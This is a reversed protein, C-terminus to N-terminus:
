YERSGWERPASIVYDEGTDPIVNFFIKSAGKTHSLISSMTSKRTTDFDFRVPCIFSVTQIPCTLDDLPLWGCNPLFVNRLFTRVDDAVSSETPQYGTVDPLELKLHTLHSTHSWIPEIDEVTAIITPYNYNHLSLFFPGRLALTTLAPTSRLMNGIDSITDPEEWSDALSSLTLTRLAPLYLSGFLLTLPSATVTYDTSHAGGTLILTSLQHHTYKAPPATYDEINFKDLLHLLGFGFSSIFAWQLEPLGRMLSFWSTVSIASEHLSLHTLKSWHNPIVGDRPLTSSSNLSLRRLASPTHTPVLGVLVQARHFNQDQQVTVLTHLSPFIVQDGVAIKDHIQKWFDPDVQLYQASTMYKLLFTMGDEALPRDQTGYDRNIDLRLFPAMSGQNRKWWGVFDLDKQRVAWSRPKLGVSYTTVRYLLHSWLSPSALAVTRWSSCIQCLLM